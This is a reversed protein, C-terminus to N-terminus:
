FQLRFGPHEAPVNLVLDSLLVLVENCVLKAGWAAHVWRMAENLNEDWALFHKIFYNVVCCFIQLEEVPCAHPSLLDTGWRQWYM